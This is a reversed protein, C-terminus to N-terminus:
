LGEKYIWGEENNSAVYYFDKYAAIVGVRQGKALTTKTAAVSTPEDLLPQSDKLNIKRIPEKGATVDRSAVFGSEGGPLCVKYWDVTAAEVKLLINAEIIAPKSKFSPASFLQTQKNTRVLKNLNVLPASIKDVAKLVNNVFPLPDVAGSSTYIGFHLHPLTSRANGTNGVLGITDGVKVHQGPQVLQEQLHAYYLTYPKNTPNLFVVKGGLTNENVRTVEGEAAAVLATGRPAFIDIGEHRRAGADRDVGWFSGINSKVKPTVPFALSPGTTITVTYDGGKLLEPQLRLIYNGNKEVEFTLPSLLTDAALLFKPTADGDIAPEWLDVYIAFGASPDKNLSITLKEGRRAGFTLGVARPEAAAFYGTEKYPINVSVPKLLSQGAAAFWRRGLATESLGANKLKDGYDDHPSKRGFIGSPGQTICSSWTIAATFLIFARAPSLYNM